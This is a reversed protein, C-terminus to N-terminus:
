ALTAVRRSLPVVMSCTEDEHNRVVEVFKEARFDHAQQM